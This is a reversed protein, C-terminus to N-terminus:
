SSSSWTNLCTGLFWVIKNPSKLALMSISCLKYNAIKFSIKCLVILILPPIKAIDLSHHDLTFHKWMVFNVFEQNYFVCDCYDLRSLLCHDLISLTQYKLHRITISVPFLYLNCFTFSCCFPKIHLSKIYFQIIWFNLFQSTFIQFLNSAKSIRSTFLTQRFIESFVLIEALSDTFNFNLAVCVM